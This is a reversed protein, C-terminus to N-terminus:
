WGIYAPPKIGKLRLYVILQGVHHTKHDHLLLLIQRRTLPGAFFPVTEGLQKATLNQHAALAMDYSDALIQLVAAKDGAEKKLQTKYDTLLYSASLRQMNQATHLLQEKFSMEDPAPKFDYHEAPMLEAIQLTYAKAHVWKRSLQSVLSDNAQAFGTFSFSYCLLALILATLRFPM